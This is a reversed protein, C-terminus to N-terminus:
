STELVIFPEGTRIEDDPDVLLELVVGGVPVSVEVLAKDTEVRAVVQNPAVSDGVGVLWESVVVEDTTEAVRPM